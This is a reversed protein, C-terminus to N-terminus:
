AEPLPEPVTGPVFVGDKVYAALTMDLALMGDRKLDMLEPEVMAGHLVGLVTAHATQLVTIGKRLASAKTHGIEGAFGGSGRYVRGGLVLAGGVGSDGTLYVYDDTKRCLGFLREAMAAAKTDNDVAVPCDFIEELMARIPVDRWGLNPALVLNGDRDMLGPIGVGLARVSSWSEGIEAIKRDVAERLTVLAAKM